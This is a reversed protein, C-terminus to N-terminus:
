NYKRSSIPYKNHAPCQASCRVDKLLAKELYTILIKVIPLFFQIGVLNLSKALATHNTPSYISEFRPTKM